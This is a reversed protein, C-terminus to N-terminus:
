GRHTSTEAHEAVLTGQAQAKRAGGECVRGGGGYGGERDDTEGDRKMERARKYRTARLECNSPQM